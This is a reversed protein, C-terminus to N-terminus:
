APTGVPEGREFPYGRELWEEVTGVLAAAKVPLRKTVLQVARASTEENPCDCYYIITKEPPVSAAHKVVERLDRRVAGPLHFQEYAYAPRLDVFVAEGRELLEKAEEQRIRAAASFDVTQVTGESEGM